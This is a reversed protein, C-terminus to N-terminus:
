RQIYTHRDSYLEFWYLETGKIGISYELLLLNVSYRDDGIKYWGALPFLDCPFMESVKEQAIHRQLLSFINNLGANVYKVNHM